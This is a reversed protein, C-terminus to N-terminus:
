YEIEKEIIKIGNKDNGIILKVNYGFEKYTKLRDIWNQENHTWISKVEILKNEKPIYIDPISIRIRNKQTDFYKIRIKEVEYYIKQEDLIKYYDLEYSSRYHVKRNDWTIHEGSKYPYIHFSEYNVKGNMIGISYSESRNRLKIKLRRFLGGINTHNKMGYKSSIEMITMENTFYDNKLNILLIEVYM